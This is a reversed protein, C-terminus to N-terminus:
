IVDPLSELAARCQEDKVALRLLMSTVGDDASFNRKRMQELRNMAKEVEKERLLGHIVVNYSISDPLRGNEEMETLLKDAVLSMHNKCLGISFVDPNCKLKSASGLVFNFTQILPSPQTAILKDFYTLADNLTLKGSKCQHRVFYEFDKPGLLHPNQPNQFRPKNNPIASSNQLPHKTFLSSLSSLARTTGQVAHNSDTKIKLLM